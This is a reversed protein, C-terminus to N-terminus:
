LRDAEAWVFQVEERRQAASLSHRNNKKKKSNMKFMYMWGAKM